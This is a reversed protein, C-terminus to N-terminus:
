VKFMLQYDDVLKDLKAKFETDSMSRSIFKTQLGSVKTGNDIERVMVKTRTEDDNQYAGARKVSAIKSALEQKRGDLFKQAEDVGRAPDSATTVKKVLEDTFSDVEALVEDVTAARKCGAAWAGCLAAALLLGMVLWKRKM